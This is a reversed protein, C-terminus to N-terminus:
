SQPFPLAMGDFALEFSEVTACRGEAHEERLQQHLEANTRSHELECFMGVGLVRMPCLERVLDWAQDWCFHSFHTQNKGLLLDVVLVDIRVIRRLFEMSNSPVCSVDSLFAVCFGDEGHESQHDTKFRIKSGFVFGLSTYNKGHELPISFLDLGELGPVFFKCPAEDGVILFDLATSRREIIRSKAPSAEEARDRIKWYEEKTETVDGIMRSNSVIYKFGQSLTTLTRQTVVTPIYHLCVVHKEVDEFKQLDRLDDIGMIADAHDHTLLLSDVRKLKRAVLHAFYASRFTKGCDILVNAETQESGSVTTTILLSVNNRRNKSQPNEIADKCACDEFHGMVPIGTSVGTGVFVLERHIVQM